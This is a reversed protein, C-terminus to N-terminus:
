MIKEFDGGCEIFLELNLDDNNFGMEKLKFLTKTYNYYDDNNINFNENQHVKNGINFEDNKNSFNNNGGGLFIQSLLNINSPNLNQKVLEPNEFSFKFLPNIKKLEKIQPINNLQQMLEPNSVVNKVIDIMM